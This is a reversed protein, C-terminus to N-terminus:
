VKGKSIRWRSSSKMPKTTWKVLNEAEPLESCCFFLWMYGVSCQNTVIDLCFHCSLDRNAEYLLKRMDSMGRCSYVLLAGGWCLFHKSNHLLAVCAVCVREREQSSLASVSCQEHLCVENEASSQSISHNQMKFFFFHSFYVTPPLGSLLYFPSACGCMMKKVEGTLCLRM